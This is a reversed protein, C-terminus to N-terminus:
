GRRNVGVELRQAADAQKRAVWSAALGADAPRRNSAGIREDHRNEAPDCGAHRDGCLFIDLALEDKRRRRGGAASANMSRTWPSEITSAAIRSPSRIRTRGCGEAWVALDDHGHEVAFRGDLAEIAFCSPDPQLRLIM